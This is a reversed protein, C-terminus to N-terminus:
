MPMAFADHLHSLHALYSHFFRGPERDDLSPPAKRNRRARHTHAHAHARAHARALMITRSRFVSYLSVFHMAGFINVSCLGARKQRICHRAYNGKNIDLAHNYLLIDHFTRGSIQSRIDRARQRCSPCLAVSHLEYGPPLLLAHALVM